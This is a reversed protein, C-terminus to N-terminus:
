YMPIPEIHIEGDTIYDDEWYGSLNLVVTFKREAFEQMIADREENTLLGVGEGSLISVTFNGTRFLEAAREDSVDEIEKEDPRDKTVDIMYNSIDKEPFLATFITRTLEVSYEHLKSSAFEARMQADHELQYQRRKEDAYGTVSVPKDPVCASLFSCILCPVILLAAVRKKM